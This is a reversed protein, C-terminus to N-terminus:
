YVNVLGTQFYVNAAFQEIIMRFFRGFYTICISYSPLTFYKHGAYLNKMILFIVRESSLNFQIVVFGTTLVFAFFM